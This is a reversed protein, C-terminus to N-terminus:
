LEKLKAFGLSKPKWAHGYIVEFTIPIEKNSDRNKDFYNLLKVYNKKKFFAHQSHSYYNAGNNRLDNIFKSFSNYKLLINESDMVPNEFGLKILKDGVDHIDSFNHVKLEFKLEENARRLERLTNPGLFSFFFLGSSKCVRFVERYFFDSFLSFNSTLNSFVIDISSNKLPLNEQDACLLTKNKKFKEFFTTKKGYIKLMELSLDLGLYKIKPYSKRAYLSSKSYACGLDLFIKPHIKFFNSLREFMRKLIIDQLFANRFYLKAIRSSNNIIKQNQDYKESTQM